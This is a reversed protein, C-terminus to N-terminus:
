GRSVFTLPSLTLLMGLAVNVPLQFTHAHVFTALANLGKESCTGVGLNYKSSIYAGGPCPVHWVTPFLHICESPEVPM